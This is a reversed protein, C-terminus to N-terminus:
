NGGRLHILNKNYVERIGERVVEAGNIYLGAKVLDDIMKELGPPLRTSKSKTDPYPPSDSLKKM